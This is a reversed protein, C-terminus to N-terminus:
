DDCKTGQCNALGEGHRFRPLRRESVRVPAVLIVVPRLPETVRLRPCNYDATIIKGHKVLGSDRM